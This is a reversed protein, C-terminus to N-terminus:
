WTRAHRLRCLYRRAVRGPPFHLPPHDHAHADEGGRNAPVSRLRRPLCVAAGGHCGRADRVLPVSRPPPGAIHITTPLRQHHPTSRQPTTLHTTHLHKPFPHAFAPQNTPSHIPPLASPPLIPQHFSPARSLTASSLLLIPEGLPSIFVMFIDYFFMLFLLFAAVKMSPLRMTQAFSVCRSPM